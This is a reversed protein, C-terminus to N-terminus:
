VEVKKTMVWLIPLIMVAGIISAFPIYEIKQSMLMFLAIMYIITTLISCYSIWQNKGYYFLYNVLILYPITLTAVMVFMMIYYKTGLFQEGFIWVIVNEPMLWMMIAPVPVVFLSLLTWKQVKALTLTGKKLGEYYYSITAKNVAMISISLISAVTAGMAYLGLEKEGFQHYIFIRDLQGRIFLSAHHLILPLGFGLIYMLGSKYHEFAFKKKQVITKTYLGYSILFVVINSLLVALIRKEVLDAKFIELMVITLLASIVGSLIQIITYNIAQKQCQRVALQVSLFSSFIASLVLYAMMEARFFWCCLLILGGLSITYAYGVTLILNLSRKGYVYFYRVLAGEQGLLLIISFLALYTQYYSLEGFGEVGLKRSLYPLMLFPVIKSFLEGTVYIASDKFLKM